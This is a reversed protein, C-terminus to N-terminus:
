VCIVVPKVRSHVPATSFVTASVAEVVPHLFRCVAAGLTNGTSGYPTFWISAWQIWGESPRDFRVKSSDQNSLQALGEMFNAVARHFLRATFDGSSCNNSNLLILEGSAALVGLQRPNCYRLIINAERARRLLSGFVDAFHLVAVVALKSSLRVLDGLVIFATPVFPALAYDVQRLQPRAGVNTSLCSNSFTPVVISAMSGASREVDTRNNSYLSECIKLVLHVGKVTGSYLVREQGSTLYELLVGSVVEDLVCIEVFLRLTFFGSFVRPPGWRGMADLIPGQQLIGSSVDPSVRTVEFDWCRFLAM